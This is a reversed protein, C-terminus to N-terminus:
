VSAPISGGPGDSGDDPPGDHSGIYPDRNGRRIIALADEILCTVRLAEDRDTGEQMFFDAETQLGDKAEDGRVPKTIGCSVCEESTLTDTEILPLEVDAVDYIDARLWVGDVVGSLANGIETNYLRLAFAYAGCQKLHELKHKEKQNVFTRIMYLFLLLAALPLVTLVVLALKENM